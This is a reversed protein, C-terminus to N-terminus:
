SVAAACMGGDGQRVFRSTWLDWSRPGHITMASLAYQYYCKGQQYVFFCYTEPFKETTPYKYCVKDGGIIDWLGAETKSGIETYDTTGNAHHFEKFDYTKNNIGKFTRYESLIMSENFVGRLDANKLQRYQSKTQGHATSALMIALYIIILARM